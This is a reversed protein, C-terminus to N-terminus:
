SHNTFVCGSRPRPHQIDLILEATKLSFSSYNTQGTTTTPPTAMFVIQCQRICQIKDVTLVYKACHDAHSEHGPHGPALRVRKGSFKQFNGHAFCKSAMAYYQHSVRSCYYSDGHYSQIITSIPM